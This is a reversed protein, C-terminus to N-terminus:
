NPSTLYLPAHHDEHAAHTTLGPSHSSVVDSIVNVLDAASTRKM